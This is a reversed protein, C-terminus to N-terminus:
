RYNYQVHHDNIIAEYISLEHPFNGNFILIGRAFCISGIYSTSIILSHNFLAFAAFFGPLILAAILFPYILKPFKYEFIPLAMILYICFLMSGFGCLFAAGVKIFNVSLMGVVYSLFACCVIVSSMLWVPTNSDLVYSYYLWM